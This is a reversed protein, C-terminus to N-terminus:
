PLIGLQRYFDLHNTVQFSESIKGDQTAIRVMLKTSAARGTAPIPELGPRALTGTFTGTYELQAFIRGEDAIADVIRMQIDPLAALVSEFFAKIAPRGKPAAVGAIEWVGDPAFLNADREADHANVAAVFEDLLKLNDQATM